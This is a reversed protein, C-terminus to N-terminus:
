IAGSTTQQLTPEAKRYHRSEHGTYHATNVQIYPLRGETKLKKKLFIRISFMQLKALNYLLTGGGRSCVFMVCKEPSLHPFMEGINTHFRYPGAQKLTALHVRM